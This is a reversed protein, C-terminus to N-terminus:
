HIIVLTGIAAFRWVVVAEGAPVRICGHSAPYPPVDPYEHLAYGGTFYSAYPMWVQFPVSWSMREKRYITFTGTPTVHGPAATSVHIARTVQGGSVLLLVQQAVHVELHRGTTSWPQPRQAGALQLRTQPGVVGDREMGEWGQFAIVAQMTRYDYVGTSYGPPLFTLDSLRRQLQAIGVTGRGTPPTAPLHMAQVAHLLNQIAAHPSALWAPPTGGAAQMVRTVTGRWVLAQGAARSLEAKASGLGNAKGAVVRAIRHLAGAAQTYATALLGGRASRDGSPLARMRVASSLLRDAGRRLVLVAAARDAESSSAGLQRMTGQARRIAPIAALAPTQLVRLSRAVAQAPTTPTSTSSSPPATSGAAGCGAVLALLGLATAGALFQKGRNYLGGMSGDSWTRVTAADAAM